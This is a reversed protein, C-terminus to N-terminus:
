KATSIYADETLRYSMQVTKNDNVNFCRGCASCDHTCDIQNITVNDAPQGATDGANALVNDHAYFYIINLALMLLGALGIAIHKM